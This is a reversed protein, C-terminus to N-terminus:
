LSQESFTYRQLSLANKGCGHALSSVLYEFIGQVLAAADLVGEPDGAAEQQHGGIDSEEQEKRPDDRAERDDERVGDGEDEGEQSELRQVAPQLVAQHLALLGEDLLHLLVALQLPFDFDQFQLVAGEGVLQVGAHLRAGEGDPQVVGELHLLHFVRLLAVDHLLLFHVGQVAFLEVNGVPFEESPISKLM